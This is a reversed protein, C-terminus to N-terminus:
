RALCFGLYGAPDCGSWCFKNAETAYGSPHQSVPNYFSVWSAIGARAERGDAYGM